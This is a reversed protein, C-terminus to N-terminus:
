LMELNAPAWIMPTVRLDDDGGVGGAGGHRPDVADEGVELCPREADVVTQAALVQLGVEVLEDKAKVAAAGAVGGEIGEESEAHM